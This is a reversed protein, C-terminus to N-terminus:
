FKTGINFYSAPSHTFIHPIIRLFILRVVYIRIPLLIIVDAIHQMYILSTMKNQQSCTGIADM